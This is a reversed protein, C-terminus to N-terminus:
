LGLKRVDHIQVLGVAKGFTLTGSKAFQNESIWGLIKGESKL